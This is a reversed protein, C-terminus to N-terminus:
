PQQQCPWSAAPLALGCTGNVVGNVGLQVAGDMLMAGTQLANGVSQSWSSSPKDSVWVQEPMGTPNGLADVAGRTRGGHPRELHTDFRRLQCLTWRVPYTYIEAAQEPSM